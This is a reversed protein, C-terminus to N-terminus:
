RSTRWEEALEQAMFNWTPPSHGTAVRFRTGNLTRDIIPEAVPVIDVKIGFAARLCCLLDHKSITGGSVHYLSSMPYGGKAIVRSIARAVEFGSLGNWLANTYGKVTRGAQAEELLWALFGRATGRELGIFSCRLTLSETGHVEGALKSAGYLDVPDPSDDENYSGKSGSFVCDTSIHLLRTHYRRAEYELWHPLAANLLVTDRPSESERCKVIGACNVIWDFRLALLRKVSAYLSLDLQARTIQSVTHGDAELHEAVYRGLLGAAGLVAINM